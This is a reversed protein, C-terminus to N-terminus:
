PGLITMPLRKLDEEERLVDSVDVSVDSVDLVIQACWKAIIWVSAFALCDGM